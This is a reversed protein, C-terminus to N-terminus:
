HLRMSTFYEKLVEDHRRKCPGNTNIENAWEAYKLGPTPRMICGPHEYEHGWYELVHGLEHGAIMAISEIKTVEDYHRGRAKVFYDTTITMPFTSVIIMGGLKSPSSSSFGSTIGGRMSSHIAPAYSEASIIPQNTIILDFDNQHESIFDWSMFENYLDDLILPRNDSCIIDKIYILKNIHLAAVQRLIGEKSDTLDILEAGEQNNVAKIIKDRTTDSNKDILAWALKHISENTIPLRNTRVKKDNKIFNAYPAFYDTIHRKSTRTYRLDVKFHKHCIEKTRYLINAYEIDTISDFRPNLVLCPRVQVTRLPMWSLIAVAAITM